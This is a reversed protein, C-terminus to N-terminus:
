NVAMTNKESAGQECSEHCESGFGSDPGAGYVVSEALFTSSIDFDASVELICGTHALHSHYNVM